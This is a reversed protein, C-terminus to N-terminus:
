ASVAKKMHQRHLPLRLIFTSGKGPESEVTIEGQHARVIRRAIALGLGSGRPVNTSAHRLRAFEEFIREQDERAIGPGSDSVSIEAQQQHQQLSITVKGGTPTFKLANGVLNIVVQQIRENDAAVRPMRAPLQLHLGIGRQAAEVRFLREAGTLVQRLDCPALSMQMKGSEIQSIDLMSNVLRILRKCSGLSEELTENEEATLRDALSESLMTNYGLIVTLPTRLEHTAVNLFQSKLRDLEKLKSNAIQLDANNRRLETILQAHRLVLAAQGALAELFRKASAHFEYPEARNHTCLVCVLEGQALGAALAFDAIGSQAAWDLLPRPANERTVTIGSLLLQRLEGNRLLASVDPTAEFEQLTFVGAEAVQLVHRAADSVEQVIQQPDLSRAIASQIRYLTEIESLRKRELSRQVALKLEAVETPKILYEYAGKQVAEMASQLSGYGTLMITVSHPSLTRVAELVQLGDVSPMKLDTLVLDYHHRRIAAIAEAGGSAVDVEYGEDELIARLTLLISPEDDVVLLKAKPKEM